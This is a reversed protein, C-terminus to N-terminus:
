PSTDPGLQSLALKVRSKNAAPKFFIRVVFAQECQERGILCRFAMQQEVNVIEYFATTFNVALSYLLYRQPLATSRLDAPCSPVRKAPLRTTCCGSKRMVSDISSYPLDLSWGMSTGLPYRDFVLSILSPISVFTLPTLPPKPQNADVALCVHRRKM